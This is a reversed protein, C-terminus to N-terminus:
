IPSAFTSLNEIYNLKYEGPSLGWSFRAAPERQPGHNCADTDGILFM